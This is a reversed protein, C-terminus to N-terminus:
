TLPLAVRHSYEGMEGSKKQEEGHSSNLDNKLPQKFLILLKRLTRMTMPCKLMVKIKFM